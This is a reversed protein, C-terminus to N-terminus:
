VICIKFFGLIVTILINSLVDLKLLLAIGRLAFEAPFYPYCARFVREVVDFALVIAINNKVPHGSFAPM